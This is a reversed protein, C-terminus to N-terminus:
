SGGGTYVIRYIFGALDDSVYLAGDPGVALGVPRGSVSGDAALWGSAFDVPDGAPLGGEFPIRIVQYGVPTSRNWSGHLAVFLDGAFEDPFTDGDYFTLGLPASHAQLEVDAAPVGQCSDPTALEPDVIQGAHCTPWGYDAGQQVQHITDPPLDDGLFDRGNNSAWLLDTSPQLTLGVANRLGSAYIQQGSGDPGDYSVIGARRRDDEQCANCSSGVSVLMRGDPLFIVTRTNHGGTPYDDIVVQREDAVGDGDQDHLAVVGSPVGVFWRGQHFVLSHPSSLEDAFVSLSDARGDQNEDPLRVIRGAGREAVHLVGDPSFAIFRPGVLGSAFVTAEFGTPLQLSARDGQSVFGALNVQRLLRWVQLGGAALVVL